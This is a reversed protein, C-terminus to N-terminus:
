LFFTKLNAMQLAHMQHLLRKLKKLSWLDRMLVIQSLRYEMRHRLHEIGIMNVCREYCISSNM